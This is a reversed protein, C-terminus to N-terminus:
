MGQADEISAVPNWASQGPKGAEGLIASPRRGESTRLCLRCMLPMEWHERVRM